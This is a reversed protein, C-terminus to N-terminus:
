WTLNSSHRDEVVLINFVFMDCNILLWIVSDVLLPINDISIFPLTFWSLSFEVFIESKVNFSWEVNDRSKSSVSVEFSDVVSLHDDLCLIALLSLGPPEILFREGDLGLDVVL